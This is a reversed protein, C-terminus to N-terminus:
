EVPIEAANPTGTANGVVSVIVTGAPVGATKTQDDLIKAMKGAYTSATMPSAEMEEYLEKLNDSLTKDVLAV